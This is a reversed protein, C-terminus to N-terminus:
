DSTPSFYVIKVYLLVAGLITTGGAVTLCAAVQPLIHARYLEVPVAYGVIVLVGFLVWAAHAADGHHADGFISHETDDVMCQGCATPVLIALLHVVITLLPWWNHYQLISILVLLIGTALLMANTFIVCLM